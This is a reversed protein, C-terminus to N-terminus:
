GSHVVSFATASKLYVCVQGQTSTPNFLPLSFIGQPTSVITQYGKEAARERSQKAFRETASDTGVESVGQLM